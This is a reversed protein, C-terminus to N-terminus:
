HKTQKAAETYVGNQVLCSQAFGAFKLYGELNYITLPTMFVFDFCVNLEITKAVKQEEPGRPTHSYLILGDKISINGLCHLSIETSKM